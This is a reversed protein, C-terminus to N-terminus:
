FNTCPRDPHKAAAEELIQYLPIRPYDITPPVGEDYHALWPLVESNGKVM